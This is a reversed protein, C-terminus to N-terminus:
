RAAEGTGSEFLKGTAEPFSSSMNIDDCDSQIRLLDGLPMFEQEGVQNGKTFYGRFTLYDLISAQTDARRIENEEERAM